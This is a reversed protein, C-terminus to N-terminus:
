HRKAVRHSHLKLIAMMRLLEQKTHRLGYLLYIQPVLLPHTVLPAIMVMAPRHQEM